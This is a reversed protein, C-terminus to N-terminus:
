LERRPVQLFLMWSRPVSRAIKELENNVLTYANSAQEPTDFAGIYEQTNKTGSCRTRATFRGPHSESVGLPLARKKKSNALARNEDSNAPVKRKFWDVGHLQVMKQNKSKCQAPTRTKVYKMAVEKWDTGLMHIGGALRTTEDDNWNGTRMGDGASIDVKYDLASPVMLMKTNTDTPQKQQRRM